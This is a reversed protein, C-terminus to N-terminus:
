ANLCFYDGQDRVMASFSGLWMWKEEGLVVMGRAILEGGNVIERWSRARGLFISM